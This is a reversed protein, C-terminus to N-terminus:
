RGGGAMIASNSAAVDAIDVATADGAVCLVAEESGAVGLVPDIERGGGRASLVM